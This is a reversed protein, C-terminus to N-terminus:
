PHCAEDILHLFQSKGHNQPKSRCFIPLSDTRTHPHSAPIQFQPQEPQQQKPLLMCIHVLHIFSVQSCFIDWLYLRPKPNLQYAQKQLLLYKQPRSHSSSSPCDSSIQETNTIQKYKAIHGKRVSVGFLTPPNPGSVYLGGRNFYYLQSNFHIRHIQCENVKM